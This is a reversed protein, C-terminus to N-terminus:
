VGIHRRPSGVYRSEEKEERDGGRKKKKEEVTKKRRKELRGLRRQRRGSEAKLDLCTPAFLRATKREKIDEKKNDKEETARKRDRHKELQAPLLGQDLM